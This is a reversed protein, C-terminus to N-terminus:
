LLKYLEAKSANSKYEVGAETLLVKIDAANVSDYKPKTSTSEAVQVPADEILELHGATVLKEANGAPFSADTVLDGASYIKKCLGGVSLSIVKYNAM